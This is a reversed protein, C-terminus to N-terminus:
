PQPKNDLGLWEKVKPDYLATEWHRASQIQKIISQLEDTDYKERARLMTRAKQSPSINSGGPSSPQPQKPENGFAADRLDANRLNAGCLDVNRLNAERLNANSLNVDSLDAGPVDLSKLSVGDRVLDELAQKRAYSTPVNAAAANDIVQWAEYHKRAKRDPVEKFYLIIASVISISDANQFLVRVVDRPSKLDIDKEVWLALFALGFVFVGVFIWTPIKQLCEEVKNFPQKRRM